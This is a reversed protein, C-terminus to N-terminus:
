RDLKDLLYLYPKHVHHVFITKPNDPYLKYYASDALLVITAGTRVYDGCNSYAPPIFHPLSKRVLKSTMKGLYKEYNRQTRRSPKDLKNFIHKLVLRKPFKQKRIFPKANIFPNTINFDHVTQITMPTEPVWDASNVVNYAWGNQTMAEYEYAFYV